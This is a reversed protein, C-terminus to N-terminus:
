KITIKPITKTCDITFFESRIFGNNVSNLAVLNFTTIFFLQTRWMFREQIEKGIIVAEPHAKQAKFNARLLSVSIVVLRFLHLLSLAVVFGVMVSSISKGTFNLFEM